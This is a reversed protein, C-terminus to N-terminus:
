VPKGSSVDIVSNWKLRHLIALENDTYSPASTLVSSCRELLARMFKVGEESTALNLSLVKDDATRLVIGSRRWPNSEAFKTRAPVGESISVISSIPIRVPHKMGGVLESDSLLWHMRERDKLILLASLTSGILVAVVLYIMRIAETPESGLILRHSLILAAACVCVVLILVLIAQLVNPRYRVSLPQMTPVMNWNKM